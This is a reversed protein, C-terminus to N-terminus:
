SAKPTALFRDSIFGTSRIGANSQEDIGAHFTLAPPLLKAGPSQSRGLVRVAWVGAIDASPLFHEFCRETGSGLRGVGSAVPAVRIAGSCFFKAMFQRYIPESIHIGFHYQSRATVPKNFPPGM